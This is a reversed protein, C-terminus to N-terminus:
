HQCIICIKLFMDDSGVSRSGLLASRPAPELEWTALQSRHVLPLQQSRLPSFMVKTAPLPRKPSARSSLGSILYLVRSMRSGFSLMGEDAGPAPPTQTAKRMLPRRLSLNSSALVIRIGWEDALPPWSRPEM